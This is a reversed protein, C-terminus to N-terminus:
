PAEPAAATPEAVPAELARVRDQAVDREGRTVRLATSLQALSSLLKAHDERLATASLSRTTGLDEHLPVPIGALPNPQRTPEITM